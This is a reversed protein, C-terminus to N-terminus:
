ELSNDEYDHMLKDWTSINVIGTEALKSDKQYKM